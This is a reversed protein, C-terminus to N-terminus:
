RAQRSPPAFWTSRTTSPASGSLHTDGLDLYFMYPSPNLRRLAHYIAFPEASTDREFRQSLVIQFADGAAIYDKAACVKHMYQAPSMNSRLEFPPRSAPSRPSEAARLPQQLREVVREIRTAAQAYASSVDCNVHAHAIVLLRH